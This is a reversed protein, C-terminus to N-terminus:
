AAGGIRAVVRATAEAQLQAYRPQLAHFTTAFPARAAIGKIGISRAIRRAAYRLRSYLTGSNTVRSLDGVLGRFGGAQIKRAVWEFFTTGVESPPAALGPKRGYEDVLARVDTSFIEIGTNGIQVRVSGREGGRDVKMRPILAAKTEAEVHEFLRAREEAVIAATRDLGGLQLTMYANM